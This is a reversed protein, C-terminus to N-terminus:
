IGKLDKIVSFGLETLKYIGDKEEVIGDKILENLIRELMKLPIRTSKAIAEKSVEKSKLVEVIRIKNPNSTLHGVLKEMHTIM